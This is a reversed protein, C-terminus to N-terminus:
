FSPSQQSDYRHSPFIMFFAAQKAILFLELWKVPHLKWGEDQTIFHALNCM